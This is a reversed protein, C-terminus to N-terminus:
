KRHSNRSYKGEDEDEDEDENDGSEEDSPVSNAIRGELMKRRREDGSSEQSEKDRSGRPGQSRVRKQPRAGKQVAAKGRQKMQSEGSAESQEDNDGEEEEEEEEESSSPMRYKRSPRKPAGDRGGGRLQLGRRHNLSSASDAISHAHPLSSCSCMPDKCQLVRTKAWAASRSHVLAYECISESMAGTHEKESGATPSRQPQPGLALPISTPLGPGFSHLLANCTGMNALTYVLVPIAWAALAIAGKSWVMAKAQEAARLRWSGLSLGREPRLTPAGRLETLLLNFTSLYARGM